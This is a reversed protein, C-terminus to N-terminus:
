HQQTDAKNNRFKLIGRPCPPVGEIMPQAWQFKRPELDKQYFDSPLPLNIVETPFKIQHNIWIIRTIKKKKMKNKKNTNNTKIKKNNNIAKALIILVEIMTYKKDKIKKKMKDKWKNVTM